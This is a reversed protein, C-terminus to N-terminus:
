PKETNKTKIELGEKNTKWEAYSAYYLDELESDSHSMLKILPIMVDKVYKAGKIRELSYHVEFMSEFLVEGSNPPPDKKFMEIVANNIGNLYQSQKADSYRHSNHSLWYIACHRDNNQIGTIIVGESADSIRDRGMILATTVLKHFAHYQLMWRYFTSRNIGVKKCVHDINPVKKLEESIRKTIDAEYRM